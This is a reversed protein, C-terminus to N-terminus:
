SAALTVRGNEAAALRDLDAEVVPHPRNRAALARPLRAAFQVLARRGVTSTVGTRLLSGTASIAIPVPRRMWATLAQNRLALAAKAPTSGDAIPHHHAIVQDCYSLGWGSARLDYALRAEEGMFFVVPDFGGASRFADRRVVASCALFGLVSPGPLEGPRGLPASAM